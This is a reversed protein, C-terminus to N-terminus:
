VGASGTNSTHQVQQPLGPRLDEHVYVTVGDVVRDLNYLQWGIERARAWFVEPLAVAWHVGGEVCDGDACSDAQDCAYAWLAPPLFGPNGEDGDFRGGELRAPTSPVFGGTNTIVPSPSAAAPPEPCRGGRESDRRVGLALADALRDVLAVVVSLLYMTM